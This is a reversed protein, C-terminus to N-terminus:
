NLSNILKHAVDIKEQDNDCIAVLNAYEPLSYIAKIHNKSIRGCGVLAIKIKRNKIPKIINM